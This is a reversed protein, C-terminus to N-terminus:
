ILFLIGDIVVYFHRYNNPDVTCKIGPISDSMLTKTEKVIRPSPGNM